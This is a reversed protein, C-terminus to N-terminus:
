DQALRLGLYGSRIYPENAPRCAARVDGANNDWSSGRIVRSEGADAGSAHRGPDRQPESSYTCLSDMCWEWVNGLTDHLGSPNALKQGVPHTEGESNSSYWAIDDLSASAGDVGLVDSYHATTSRGRDRCAYEWEAETPLRPVFGPVHKELAARFRQCDEWSVNEVPRRPDGKFRSPNERMVAEWMAQTVPTDGLWFGRTITVEHQPGEDPWRGEENEPSGMLFSGPGIWRMRQEVRGVAFSVFVGYQDQGWGSAWRPPCGDALPHRGGDAAM